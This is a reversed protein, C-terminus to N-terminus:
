NKCRSCLLTSLYESVNEGICAAALTYQRHIHEPLTITVGTQHACPTSPLRYIMRQLTRKEIQAYVQLVYDTRSHGVIQAVAKPTVEPQECLRTVFTHRCVHNTINSIGTEKRLREYLRKMTIPQVPRGTSNLFIYEHNRPQRDIIAKAEPVLFVTRVGAKTKSKRIYISGETADYDDWRLNLMENRRLGTRLLFIFLHGMPLRRCVAEVSLQQDQTLPLVLKTPANTPVKLFAGIDTPIIHQRFAVTAAQRLTIYVKTITSKSLNEKYLTNLLSQLDFETIASLPTAAIQHACIKKIAYFYMDQTAPKIHPEKYTAYWLNLWENLTMKNEM